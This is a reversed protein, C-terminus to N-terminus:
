IAYQKFFAHLRTYIEETRAEIDTQLWDSQPLKALDQAELFKSKAYQAKKDDFYGNSAKINLPKELLIKNGISEIFPKAKIKDWGTYNKRWQTTQPFIHEIERKECGELIQQPYKLYLNLALLAKTLKKSSQAGDFQARFTRNNKTCLLKGALIDQSQAQFDMTGSQYLSTYANHILTKLKITNKSITYLLFHACLRMLLEEHNKLYDKGRDLCYMYYACDLYKWHENDILGLVSYFQKSRLTYRSGAYWYQKIKTINQMVVGDKLIGRHKDLFFSRLSIERSKDKHQARVVHMCLRFLFEMNTKYELEKWQQLFEQREQDKKHAFIVSRFIDVDRLPLGRDNLTNFVRLAYEFRREEDHGECEVPLVICGHLVCVCLDCFDDPYEKAFEDLQQCFYHYNKEYNSIIEGEEEQVLGKNQLIDQLIRGGVDGLAESRLNPTNYHPNGTIKDIDWLCSAIDDILRKSKANNGSVLKTHMAKLLLMLTTTRQQGDVIHQERNLPYMVMSGLFYPNEEFLHPSNEKGDLFFALIDEWLQECQEEEWVYPRQYPPIVFKNKSLHELVSKQETKMTIM